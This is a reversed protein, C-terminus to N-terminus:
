AVEEARQPGWDAGLGGLSAASHGLGRGREWVERGRIKPGEQGFGGRNGSEKRARETGPGDEPAEKHGRLERAESGWM